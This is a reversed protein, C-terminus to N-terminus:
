SEWVVAAAAVDEIGIGLSKFIRLGGPSAPPTKLLERLEILPLEVWREHPKALLLDGAEIKAQEMSDVAILEARLITDSPLERRNAQNSGMAAVFAGPKLWQDEIVPDKANTATVVL